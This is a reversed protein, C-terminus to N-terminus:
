NIRMYSVRLKDELYFSFFFQLPFSSSQNGCNSVVSDQILHIPYLFVNRVVITDLCIVDREFSKENSKHCLLLIVYGTSNNDWIGSAECHIVMTMGVAIILVVSCQGLQFCSGGPGLLLSLCGPFVGQDTSKGRTIIRFNDGPLFIFLGKYNNLLSHPLWLHSTYSFCYLVCGGTFKWSDSVNYM